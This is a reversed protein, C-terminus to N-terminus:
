VSSTARVTEGSSKVIKITNGRETLLPIGSRLVYDLWAGAVQSTLVAFLVLTTYFAANIIGSSFAVSALVIGPGGRANLAMSLNVSDRWPFGALRAGLGACLLKAACGIALFVLLMTLSFSKTLDLQYGVVVFYVPIFVAFSVKSISRMADAFMDTRAVLAYGALFAAFVLNVDLLAAIASYALLVVIVYGVPSTKPLVNWQAESIKGLLRPMVTLGATFYIVAYLVHAAIAQQPVSGSQALATAVALVGWLVIDEMVAVGLILRAFRTHLIGLDHLIKSIVPISTVAMAISVVILLSTRQGASGILPASPILPSAILALLFPLGTGVIGLWSVERRDERDFLGKTEAGSAFMLLLLGFNYLFGLVIQEKGHATGGDSFLSAALHPAFRGLLAPGIIIGALIEGVVRPQRFRMFVHGLLHALGVVVLLLLTLSGFESTSVWAEL